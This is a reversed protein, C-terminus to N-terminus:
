DNKISWPGATHAIAMPRSAASLTNYLLINLSQQRSAFTYTLASYPRRCPGHMSFFVTYLRKDSSSYVTVSDHALRRMRRSGDAPGSSLLHSWLKRSM